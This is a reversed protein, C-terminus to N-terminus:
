QEQIKRDIQYTRFSEERQKERKLKRAAITRRDKEAVLLKFFPSSKRRPIGLWAAVMGHIAADPVESLLRGKHKGSPIISKDDAM